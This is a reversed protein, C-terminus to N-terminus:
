FAVQWSQRSTYSVYSLVSITDTVMYCVKVPNDLIPGALDLESM